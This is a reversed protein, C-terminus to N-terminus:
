TPVELFKATKQLTFIISETQQQYMFSMIQIQTLILIPAYDVQFQFIELSLSWEIFRRIYMAGTATANRRGAENNMSLLTIPIVIASALSSKLITHYRSKLEDSAYKTFKVLKKTVFCVLARVRCTNREARICLHNVYKKKQHFFPKCVKFATHYWQNQHSQIKNLWDVQHHVHQLKVSEYGQM